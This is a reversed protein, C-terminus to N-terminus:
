LVAKMKESNIFDFNFSNGICTTNYKIAEENQEEEMNGKEGAQGNQQETGNSQQNEANAGDATGQYTQPQGYVHVPGSQPQPYVNYQQQQQQQQQLYNPDQAYGQQQQPPPTLAQQVGYQQYTGGPSVGYQIQQQQQQANLPDFYSGVFANGGMQPQAQQQQQGYGQQYGQYGGVQQQQQMNETGYGYGAQQGYMGQMQGYGQMMQGGMMGAGYAGYQAGYAGMGAMGQMGQMGAMGQMGGFSSLTNLLLPNNALMAYPNMMNSLSSTGTDQAQNKTYAQSTKLARGRLISGQMERIAAQAENNDSFKVFGFGKCNKTVPDVIVKSGLVSRYRRQFFETLIQDNVSPDLEGVYISHEPGPAAGKNTQQVPEAAQASQANSTFNSFRSGGQRGGAGGAGGAERAERGSEGPPKSGGGFVGWNLKFTKNTGPITKGQYTNLVDRAAAHDRFEVFGYGSPLGSNKDRIMKVSVVSGAGAFLSGIYSEDMWTDIDGIWLTKSEQLLPNM